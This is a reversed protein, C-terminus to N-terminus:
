SDATVSPAQGEAVCKNGLFKILQIQLESVQQRLNENEKQLDDIKKNQVSITNDMIKKQSELSEEAMRKYADFADNLNRIQQSEVETNYKRKTFIFTVWGSVTSCFLTVLAMIIETSM